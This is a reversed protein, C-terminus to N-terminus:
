NVMLIESVFQRVSKVKRLHSTNFKQIRDSFYGLATKRVLSQRRLSKSPVIVHFSIFDLPFAQFARQQTLAQASLLWSTKAQKM